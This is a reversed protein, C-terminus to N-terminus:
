QKLLITRNYFIEGMRATKSMDFPCSTICSCNKSLCTGVSPLKLLYTGISKYGAKVLEAKYTDKIKIM